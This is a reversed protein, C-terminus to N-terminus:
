PKKLLWGRESYGGGLGEMLAERVAEPLVRASFWFGSALHTEMAVLWLIPRSSM